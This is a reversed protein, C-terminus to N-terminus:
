APGQRASQDQQDQYGEGRRGAEPSEALPLATPRTPSRLTNLLAQARMMEEGLQVLTKDFQQVLALHFQRDREADDSRAYRLAAERLFTSLPLGGRAQELEALEAGSLRVSVVHTLARPALRVPRGEEFSAEVEERHKYLDDAREAETENVTERRGRSSLMAADSMIESKRFSKGGDILVEYGFDLDCQGSRPVHM